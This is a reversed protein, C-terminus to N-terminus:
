ESQGSNNPFSQILEHKRLDEIVLEWIQVVNLFTSVARDESIPDSRTSMLNTAAVVRGNSLYFHIPLVKSNWANLWAWVKKEDVQEIWNIEAISLFSIVQSVPTNEEDRGLITTDVFSTIRPIKKTPEPDFTAHARLNEPDNGVAQLTSSIGLREQLLSSIKAETKSGSDTVALHSGEAAWATFGCVFLPICLAGALWHRM